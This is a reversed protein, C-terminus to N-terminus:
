SKGLITDIHTRIFKTPCQLIGVTDGLVNGTGVADLVAFDVLSGILIIAGALNLRLSSRLCMLHVLSLVIHRTGIGFKGNGGEVDGLVTVTDGIGTRYFIGGTLALQLLYEVSGSSILVVMGAIVDHHLEGSDGIAAIGRRAGGIIVRIHIDIGSLETDLDGTAHLYLSAPVVVERLAVRQVVLCEELTCEVVTITGRGGIMHHGEGVIDEILVSVADSRPLGVGVSQRDIFEETFLNSGILGGPLRRRDVVEERAGKDVATENLVSLGVTHQRLVLAATGGDNRAKGIDGVTHDLVVTSGAIATSQIHLRRADDRSTDKLVVLRRIPCADGDGFGVTCTKGRPRDQGIVRNHIVVGGHVAAADEEVGVQAGYAIYNPHVCAVVLAIYSTDDIDIGRLVHPVEGDVVGGYRIDTLCTDVIDTDVARGVLAHAPLSVLQRGVGSLVLVVSQLLRRHQGTGGQGIGGHAIHKAEEGADVGDIDGPHLAHRLGGGVFHLRGVITRCKDSLVVDRRIDAGTGDVGAVVNGYCRHEVAEKDDMRRVDIVAIGVREQLTIIRYVLLHTGGEGVGELTEAIGEVIDHIHPLPFLSGTVCCRFFLLRAVVAELDEHRATGVIWICIHETLLTVHAGIREIDRLAHGDDSTDVHAIRLVHVTLLCRLLFCNRDLADGKIAATGVADTVIAHPVVDVLVGDHLRPLHLTLGDEGSEGYAAVQLHFVDIM